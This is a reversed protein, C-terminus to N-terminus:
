SKREFSRTFRKITMTIRNFIEARSRYEWSNRKSNPNIHRKKTNRSIAEITTSGANKDFKSVGSSSRASYSFLHSFGSSVCSMKMRSLVNKCRFKATKWVVTILVNFVLLDRQYPNEEGWSDLSVLRKKVKRENRKEALTDTCKSM